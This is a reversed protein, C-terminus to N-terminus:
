FEFSLFPAATSLRMVEDSSVNSRAILAIPSGTCACVFGAGAAASFGIGRVASPL